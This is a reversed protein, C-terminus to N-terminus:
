DRRVAARRMLVGPIYHMLRAIIAMQWPFTYVRRKQRIARAIKRAAVDTQMLFPMHFTHQATMESVIYGPNITTVAIGYPNLSWGYGEMLTRVAMKTAAYTTAGPLARFGAVSAIAVLHGSRQVQMTPIFPLLTNLLGIVNVDFARTHHAANGSGLDDSGGIGANAIVLDIGGLQELFASAYTQMAAQDCVDIPEAMINAGQAECRQAVDTLRDHRRGILGLCIGPQAYHLALAQGIGSTVGTIVIKMEPM